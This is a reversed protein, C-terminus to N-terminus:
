IEFFQQRSLFGTVINPKLILQKFLAHCYPTLHERSFQVIVQILQTVKVHLIKTAKPRQPYNTTM